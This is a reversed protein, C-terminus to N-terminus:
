NKFRNYITPTTRRSTSIINVGGVGNDSFNYNRGHTGKFSPQNYKFLEIGNMSLTASPFIDTGASISLNNRTLKIDLQQAVNVIDYGMFNLGYEEFESVSAHQEFILNLSNSNKSFGFKNQDNGLGPFYDRAKGALTPGPSSNKTASINTLEGAENEIGTYTITSNLKEGATLSGLPGDWLNKDIFSKFNFTLTKGLYTEGAKTSAQDNANNDWYISGDKRQVWDEAEMGDPDNYRIPNNFSFHYPNFGLQEGDEINPDVQLFRGTTPDYTRANFDYVDLGTQYENGNFLYKIATDGQLRVKGFAYYDITQNINGINNPNVMFSVRTNGVHDKLNYYFNYNITANKIYGEEFKIIDLVYPETLNKRTFELGDDYIRYEKGVENKFVKEGKANYTFFISANAKSINNPLNLENYGSIIINGNNLMSGNENYFYEFNNARKIKNGIYSFINTENISG